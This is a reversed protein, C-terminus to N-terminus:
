SVKFLVFDSIGNNGFLNIVFFFISFYLLDVIYMFICFIIIREVVNIFGRLIVIRGRDVCCFILYLLLIFINIFLYNINVIKMNIIKYNELIFLMCVICM